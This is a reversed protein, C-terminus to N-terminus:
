SSLKDRAEQSVQADQLLISQKNSNNCTLNSAQIQHYAQSTQQVIESTMKTLSISSIETSEIEIPDLAGFVTARPVHVRDYATNLIPISPLKPYKHHIKHDVVLPILSLPLDESYDLAYIHQTNLETPAQVSVVSINRPQLYFTGANHIIPETNTSPM